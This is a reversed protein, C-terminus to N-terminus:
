LLSHYPLSAKRRLVLEKQLQRKVMITNRQYTRSLNAIEFHSSFHAIQLATKNHWALNGHVTKQALNIDYESALSM